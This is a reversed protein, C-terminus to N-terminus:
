VRIQPDLQATILPAETRIRQTPVDGLRQTPWEAYPDPVYITESAAICIDERTVMSVVAGEKDILPLCGIDFQAMQAAAFRLRTGEPAVHLPNGDILERATLSRGWAIGSIILQRFSVVGVPKDEHEIVVHRVREAIMRDFLIRGSASLDATVVETTNNRNVRTDFPLILTGLRVGDQETILGEVRGKSDVVVLADAPGALLELVRSGPTDRQVELSAYDALALATLSSSASEFPVWTNHVFGGLEFVVDDTVMALLRGDDDVVPLYRVEHERLLLACDQLTATAAVTVAAQMLSSATEIEM